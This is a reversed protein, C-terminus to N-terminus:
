DEPLEAKTASISLRYTSDVANHLDTILRERLTRITNSLQTKAEPSLYM